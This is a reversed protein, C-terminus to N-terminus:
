GRSGKALLKEKLLGALRGHWSVPRIPPGGHFEELLAAFYGGGEYVHVQNLIFGVVPPALRELARAARRVQGRVVKGAGVVMLAGQVKELLMETDASILIPAADLLVLEYRAALEGLLRPIQHIAPLNRGRELREQLGAGGGLPIRDPLLHDAKVLVQDLENEQRLLEIFGPRGEAAYRPDPHFANADVAVASVGLNALERALDLARTTAGGQAKVSTLLLVQTGQQVRDRNLKGAMRILQDRSFATTPEDVRDLVFGMLPLGLTRELDVPTRITPDLVDVAVAAVLGLAGGALLFLLYLKTRGGKFPESPVRAPSSLRVFGPAKSELTLFDMRDEISDQRRRDREIEGGLALAEQYKAAFWQATSTQVEVSKRLEEEIRRSQYVEARLRELIQDQLEGALHGRTQNLTSDIERLEREIATRGPHGPALGSMKTLLESRRNNLNSKLSTIGPDKDVLDQATAALAAQGEQRQGRDVAALGAEAEIRRQTAAALAGKSSVLLQDFPNVVSENFTTVGLEQAIQTRRSTRRGIGEVLRKRDEDLFALREDSAYFEEEKQKKLYNAAVANLLEALGEPRDGELGITILYTDLVPKIQLTGQLRQVERPDVGATTDEPHAGRRVEQLAALVIDYRNITRVQQQVFERYQSNSQLQHEIDEQLNKVFRPSVHIVAEAAYQPKGKLWALPLGALAVAAMVGLALRRHARISVLPKIVKGLGPPPAHPSPSSQM